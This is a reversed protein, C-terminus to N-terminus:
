PQNAARMMPHSIAELHQAKSRPIGWIQQHDGNGQGAGDLIQGLGEIVGGHGLLRPLSGM